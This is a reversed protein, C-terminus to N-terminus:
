NIIYKSLSQELGQLQLGTRSLIVGSGSYNNASNSVVNILNTDFGKVACFLKLFESLKYKRDYVVNIDKEYMERSYIRSCSWEVVKAFDEFGVMDFERDNQVTFLNGKSVTKSVQKLLRRDDEDSDFCGFLRLNYFNPYTSVLRAILNKSRGYSHKPNRQWIDKEQARCIDVDLDFEAGSAINILSGYYSSYSLLNGFSELNNVIIEEDLSMVSNRGMSACHVIIDYHVNKLETALQKSDSCDLEKRTFATIQHRTELYTKLKQGLFGGAGTILINM